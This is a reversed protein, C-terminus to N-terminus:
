IFFKLFTKFGEGYLVPLTSDVVASAFARRLTSGTRGHAIRVVDAAPHQEEFLPRSVPNDSTIVDGKSLFSFLM